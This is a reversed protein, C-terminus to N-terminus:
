WVFTDLGFVRRSVPPPLFIIPVRQDGGVIFIGLCLIDGEEAFIAVGIGADGVHISQCCERPVTDLFESWLSLPM